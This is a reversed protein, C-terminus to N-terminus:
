KSSSAASAARAAGSFVVDPPEPPLHEDPARWLFPLPLLTVTGKTGTASLLQTSPDPAAGRIPIYYSNRDGPLGVTALAVDTKRYRRLTVTRAYILRYGALVESRALYRELDKPSLSSEKVAANLRLVITNDDNLRLDRIEAQFRRLYSSDLLEIFDRTPTLVYDYQDGFFYLRAWGHTGGVARIRETYTRFIPTQSPAVDQTEATTSTGTWALVIAALVSTM